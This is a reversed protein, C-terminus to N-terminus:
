LAKYLSIFSFLNYQVQNLRVKEEKNPQLAPWVQMVDTEESNKTQSESQSALVMFGVSGPQTEFDYEVSASDSDEVEM